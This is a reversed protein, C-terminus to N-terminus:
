NTKNSLNSTKMETKLPSAAELPNVKEKGAKKGGQGGPSSVNPKSGTKSVKPNGSELANMSEGIMGQQMMMQKEQEKQKALEDQHWRIHVWTAWSKPMSMHHTYIHTTHNDMESVDPMIGEQMQENEGEAKMEDLTKPFMIDVLSPDEIMLPMFVHKQFNRLGDPDMSAALDPMVQMFDRRKVLNKYEAEKASYVMVGPPYDTNFKKLDIIQTDVGKVGVINAMKSELADANKAYRHFWHSWFTQEGFQMVKSTLSQALDNMQQDIAAETATNSSKGKPELVQGTGVPENAEQTLINIFNTLEPNMVRAKNIPGVSLDGTANGELKIHQNIQRSLFQSKDTINDNYWYVPNAEDKAAIYALNLLVSKARHKDELLDAISIPLNSHPIRVAEKVVIPWRSDTEITKGDPMVIDEGDGLDLKSKYVIKSFNKDTWYVYKEGKENYCYIELLQYVDGGKGDMSALSDIPPVIGERAQDRKTTYDWLYSEMGSAIESVKCELAGAKELKNLTVKSRSIWKWYYRWDQPNDFYPDYGFVLPNIVSPQMIKRDMDFRLTESYGRGFFMADWCWDYDHKAKGGEGGMELYDSQALVNYANIQDQTIGQSPLFKVQMKDDYVGAM